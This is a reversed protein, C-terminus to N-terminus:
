RGIWLCILIKILKLLNKNKGSNWGVLYRFDKELRKLSKELKFLKKKYSLIFGFNMNKTNRKIWYKCFSIRASLFIFRRKIEDPEYWFNYRYQLFYRKLRKIQIRIINIEEDIQFTKEQSWRRSYVTVRNDM